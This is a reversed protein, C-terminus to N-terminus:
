CFIYCRYTIQYNDSAADIEIRDKESSFSPHSESSIHLYPLSWFNKKKKPILQVILCNKNRLQLM